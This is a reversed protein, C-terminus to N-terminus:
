NRGAPNILIPAIPCHSSRSVYHLVMEPVGGHMTSNMTVEMGTSTPRGFTLTESRDEVSSKNVQM